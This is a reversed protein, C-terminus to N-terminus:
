PRPAPPSRPGSRTGTSPRPSTRAATAWWTASASSRCAARASSPSSRTGCSARRGNRGWGAARTIAAFERRVQWRDLPTGDERSFVLGHDHWLDGAALQEAAQRKRHEKLADTARTPLKLVRRSRRTKTDGKARVSRYVAVTGATLDVDAWTLARAEQTRVGTLLSLAVCAALRHPSGPGVEDLLRIAQDRTM